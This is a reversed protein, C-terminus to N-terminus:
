GHGAIENAGDAVGDGTEAGDGETNLYVLGWGDSVLLDVWSWSSRECRENRRRWDPRRRRRLRSWSFWESVQWMLSDGCDAPSEKPTYMASRWGRRSHYPMTPDLTPNERIVHADDDALMQRMFRQLTLSPDSVESVREGM